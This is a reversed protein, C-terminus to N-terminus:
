CPCKGVYLSMEVASVAKSSRVPDNARIPDLHGLSEGGRQMSVANIKWSGRPRGRLGPSAQSVRLHSPRM